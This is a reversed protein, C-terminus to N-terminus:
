GLLPMARRREGTAAFLANGIAPAIAIIPCEGAGAPPLDKRDILHTDLAPIDGYRPVRYGSLHANQIRGNKFHVAEFLAGGLGMIIAGNVQNLLHDARDAPPKRGWGFRDAVSQLVAKLRDNRLNHFRFELPDLGALVALEDMHNERAFNNFTSALARYSGQRLPGAAEHFATRPNQVEYPTELGPPGANFNDHQWGLLSGQASIGSSLEAVGAPRFYAWTFEEPRTWVIKVPKGVAKAVKAAEVAAEGSHKGGYGSGTDPVIVRVQEPELGLANVVEEKVGFPRQTGTHITMKNGDWEALAARPELPVHAIYACSYTAQLSKGPPAVIVPTIRDSGRIVHELETSSDAPLEQWSAKVRGLARRALRLSPAAVAVFDGDKVIRVEDKILAETTDVSILHAGFSPQRLVLAHLMGPRSLDSSYKHTGTVFDDAAVKRESRGLIRWDSPLSLAVKPDIVQDLPGGKALEGYGASKGSATVRGDEAKPVGVELNWLKAARQVLVERAEAAAQRVQPVMTPTTRSGFTGMDFPTLDTDGMVISIQSTPVRLEEAAAQTLSTRANQGVEVKGTFVTIRGTPAIHIWASIEQPVAVGPRRQSWAMAFADPVGAAILIGGGLAKLLQRRSLEIAETM